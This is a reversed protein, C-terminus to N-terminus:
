CFRSNAATKCASRLASRCRWPHAQAPASEELRTLDRRITVETVGFHEALARVTCAGKHNVMAVIETEREALLM